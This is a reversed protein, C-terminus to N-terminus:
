SIPQYISLGLAALSRDSRRSLLFRHVAEAPGGAQRLERHLAVFLDPVGKDDLPRLSGIVASAGAALFPTVLNWGEGGREDASRASDCAALFVIPHGPLPWRAVDTLMVRDTLQLAMRGPQTIRFDAHIALHVVDAGRAAERVAEGFAGKGALVVASPYLSQIAEAEAVAGMLRPLGNAPDAVIAVRNLPNRARRKLAASLSSAQSCALTEGLFSDSAPDFLAQFPVNLWPGHTVFVLRRVGRLHEAVPALLSRRLESASARAGELDDAALSALASQLTERLNPPRPVRQGHVGEATLSWLWVDNRGVVMAVLGEGPGLSAVDPARHDEAQLGFDLFRRGVELRQADTCECTRLLGEYAPLISERFAEVGLFAPRVGEAARVAAGFAGEAERSAGSRELVEGRLSLMQPLRDRAGRSELSRIAEDLLAVKSEAPEPGFSAALEAEAVKLEIENRHRSAPDPIRELVDRAQGIQERGSGPKLAELARAMGLSWYFPSASSQLTESKALEEVETLVARAVFPLDQALSAMAVEYLVSFRRSPDRQRDSHLLAEGRADWSGQVDGEGGLLEALLTGLYGEHESDGVRRYVAQSREFASRAGQLQGEGELTLGLLALARASLTLYGREEAREVLAKLETSRGLRRIYRSLQSYYQRWEACPGAQFGATSVATSLDALDGKRYAENARALFAGCAARDERSLIEKVDGDGMRAFVAALSEAEVRYRDPSQLYRTEVEDRAAGYNTRVADFLASLDASRVIESLPLPSPRESEVELASLMREAEGRWGGDPEKEVVAQWASVAAKRLHLGQLALAKNFLAEPLSGDVELAREAWELALVRDSMHGSLDSRVLYSASLDSRVSAVGRQQAQAAKVLRVAEDGDGLLLHAIGLAAAIDASRSRSAGENIRAAAALTEWGVGKPVGAQGREQRLLPGYRFGGTLRPEFFRRKAVAEVLPAVAKAYPDAERGVRWLTVSGLGVLVVAALGRKRFRSLQPAHNPPPLAPMATPSPRTPRIKVTEEINM